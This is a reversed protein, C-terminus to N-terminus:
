KGRDMADNALRDADKNKERPIHTFRVEKFKPILNKVSLALPKLNPHKIKYNGNMQEVVLMSDMEVDVETEYAKEGVVGLLLELGRLIATYEAVNNTTHGLFESVEGVVKKKDNRIVVGSGAPGPNGRAGGDAHITFRM